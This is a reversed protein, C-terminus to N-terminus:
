TNCIIELFEYMKEEVNIFANMVHKTNKYKKNM